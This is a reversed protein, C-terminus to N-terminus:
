RQECASTAKEILLMLKKKDSNLKMVLKKYDDNFKTRDKLLANVEQRTATNESLAKDYKVMEQFSNLYETTGLYEGRM